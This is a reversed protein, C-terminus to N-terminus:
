KKFETEIKINILDNIFEDKLEAFISKSMFNVNWQTRDIAFEDSYAIVTNEDISIIVPFSINKTIGKLSLNGNLIHTAKFSNDSATEANQPTLSTIEFKAFPFTAVDFFDPSKLHGVLKSNMEEDKLDTDVITNLDIIFSGGTIEKNEVTVYGESIAVTGVHQGAPKTGRWHLDSNENVISYEQGSAENVNVAESGEAKEASRNNGCATFALSFVLLLVTNKM